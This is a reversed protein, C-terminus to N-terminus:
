LVLHPKRAPDGPPNRSNGTRRYPRVPKTGQCDSQLRTGRNRIVSPPKICTGPFIQLLHSSAAFINQLDGTFIGISPNNEVDKRGLHRVEFSEAHVVAKREFEATDHGPPQRLALALFDAVIERLERLRHIGFHFLIIKGEHRLRAWCVRSVDCGITPWNRGVVDDEQDAM